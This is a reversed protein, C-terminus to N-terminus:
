QIFLFERTNVLAWIVNGYGADGHGKVEALATKREELTPRRTLISQFVVDVRMDNTKEAIVNNYMVSKPELLM